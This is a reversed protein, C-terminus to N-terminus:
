GRGTQVSIEAARGHVRRRTPADCSMEHGRPTRSPEQSAQCRPDFASLAMNPTEFM